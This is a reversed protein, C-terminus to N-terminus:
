RSREIELPQLYWSFDRCHHARIKSYASSELYRESKSRSTNAGACDYVITRFSLARSLWTSANVCVM